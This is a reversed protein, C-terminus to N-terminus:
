GCQASALRLQVKIANTSVDRIWGEQGGKRAGAKSVPTEPLM